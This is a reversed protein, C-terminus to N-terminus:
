VLVGDVIELLIFLWVAFVCAAAVFTSVAQKISKM